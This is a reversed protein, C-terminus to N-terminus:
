GLREVIPARLKSSGNKEGSVFYSQNVVNVLPTGTLAAVSSEAALTRMEEFSQDSYFATHPTNICHPAGALPQNKDTGMFPEIEHVDIGAGMIHGNDLCTRLAKEDIIGGRATNVIFSRPKMASLFEMNVIHRSTVNLDCHCSVIDSQRALDLPSTVRQVGLAKDMGAPIYPDYFLITFGFAKARLATAIGIRGFGLIGLVQGRIRRTGQALKAVGDSGRAETGHNAAEYVWTTRRFMALILSLAHDAVEETGYNPINCVPIGYAAAVKLHVNDYGVGVRVINRTNTMRQILPEDIVITHWVMLSDALPIDPNTMAEEHNTLNLAKVIVSQHPHLAFAKTLVREEVSQDAKDLIVVLYPKTAATPSPLSSPSSVTSTITTSTTSM